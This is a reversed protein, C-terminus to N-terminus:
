RATDSCGRIEANKIRGYVKFYKGKRGCPCDDEGIIEGVDETLISHGPYSTPIASLLQIMGKQGFPVARLDDDRILIDSFISTHFHGHECEFFISGTQEIMGYYNMVRSIGAVEFLESKFQENTIARDALKKWGGGHILLAREMNLKVDNKVLMEYFYQYIISTFGFLLIDSDKHRTLFGEITELDVHMDKDLAYTINKGFMSFGLIGAGRASFSKPDKLTAKSDIILMPLRQAGTFQTMLRTLVKRQNDAVNKDIFIKSPSQGSTGSSKLVKFVDEDPISKLELEKFLRVPIFPIDEISEIYKTWNLSDLIKGYDQCQKTHMSVLNRFYPLLWAEKDKKSQEYPPIRLLDALETM